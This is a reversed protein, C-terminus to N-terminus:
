KFKRKVFWIDSLSINLSVIGYTERLLNQELTGRQGLEFALNFSSQTYRMPLGFGLSLGYDNIRTGKIELHSKTYHGGFRYRVREYYHNASNFDPIYELGAKLNVLDNFAADYVNNSVKSWRILTADAGVVIKGDHNYSFGLGYSNPFSITGKIDSTDITTTILENNGYADVVFIDTYFDEDLNNTNQFTGGLMSQRSNLNIKNEYVAGLILSSNKELDFKYQLGYNFKFGNINFLKQVKTNDTGYLDDALVLTAVKSIEGFVYAANIGLSLNPTLDFSNSWYFNNLGGEGYFYYDLQGNDPNDESYMFTYDVDSIPALGFSSGWNKNGKFGLAFYGLKTDTRSMKGASSEIINFGSNVGIAYIVSLSDLGTYSAPNLGNLLSNSRLGIGIGGMAKSQEFGKNQSDGFGFQSYPSGVQASNIFSIALFSLLLITKQRYNM